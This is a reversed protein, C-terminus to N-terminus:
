STENSECNGLWCIFKCFNNPLSRLVFTTMFVISVIILSIVIKEVGKKM